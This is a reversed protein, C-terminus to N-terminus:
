VAVGRLRDTRGGGAPEVPSLLGPFVGGTGGPKARPEVVDTIQTIRAAEGPKVLQIDVASFAPDALVLSRLEEKSVTLARGTLATRDGFAVSDIDVTRLELKSMLGRSRRLDRGAGVGDLGSQAIRARASRPSRSRRGCRPEPRRM